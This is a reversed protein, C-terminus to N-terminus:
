VGEPLINFLNEFSKPAASIISGKMSNSLISPGSCNKLIQMVTPIRFGQNKKNAATNSIM